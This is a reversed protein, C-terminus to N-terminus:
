GFSALGPKQSIGPMEYEHEDLLHLISMFDELVISCSKIPEHVGVV